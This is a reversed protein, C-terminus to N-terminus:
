RTFYCDPKIVEKYEATVLTYIYDDNLFCEASAAYEYNNQEIHQDSIMICEDFITFSEPNM